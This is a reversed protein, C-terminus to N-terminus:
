MPNTGWQDRWYIWYIPLTEFFNNHYVRVLFFSFVRKSVYFQTMYNCNKVIYECFYTIIFPTTALSNGQVSTVVNGGRWVCRVSVNIKIVETELCWCLERQMVYVKMWNKVRIGFRAEALGYQGSNIYYLLFIRSYYIMGTFKYHFCLSIIWV